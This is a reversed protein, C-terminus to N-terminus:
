WVPLARSRYSTCLIALQPPQVGIALSLNGDLVRLFCIALRLRPLHVGNGDGGLMRLWQLVVISPSEVKLPVTADPPAYVFLSLLAIM